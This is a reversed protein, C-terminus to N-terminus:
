AELMDSRGLYHLVKSAAIVQNGTVALMRVVDVPPKETTAPVM